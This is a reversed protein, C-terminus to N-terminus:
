QCTQKTLSNLAFAQQYDAIADPIDDLDDQYHMGRQLFEWANAPQTIGLKAYDIKGEFYFPNPIPYNPNAKQFTVNPVYGPPVSTPPSQGPAVSGAGLALAIWTIPRHHRM